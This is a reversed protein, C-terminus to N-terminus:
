RIAQVGTVHLARKLIVMQLYYWNPVDTIYFWYGFLFLESIFFALLHDSMLNITYINRISITNDEM